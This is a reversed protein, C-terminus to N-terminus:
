RMNTEIMNAVAGMGGAGKLGIELGSMVDFFVKIDDPGVHALRKCSDYLFFQIAINIASKIARPVSGKYFAAVGGEKLKNRVTGVIDMRGGEEAEGNVAVLITDSPQSVLSAAVGAVMGSLLSVLLSLTVSEGAQPFLSYALKSAADFVAFKAMMYPIEALLLVPVGDFLERTQGRRAVEQLGGILTRPFGPSTVAKIRLSEFPTVATAAFTAAMASAFLLLPVPYLTAFEPGCIEVFKRKFFETLGFSVGGYVFYGTITAGAGLLFADKGEEELLTKFTSVMGPYKRPESQMRTKVVDIPILVAHATAGCAAGCAAFRLFVGVDLPREKEVPYRARPGDLFSFYPALKQSPYIQFESNDYYICYKPDLVQIPSIYFKGLCPDLKPVLNNPLLETVAQQLSAPPLWSRLLEGEPPPSLVAEVKAVQGFNAFDVRTPPQDVTVTIPLDVGYGSGPKVVAVEGVMMDLIAEATAGGMMREIVEGAGAATVNIATMNIAPGAIMVRIDDGTTYGKGPNTLVVGALKDGKLMCMATAARGWSARPPSITVDPAKVYGKGPSTVKIRFLRGTPKLVAKAAATDDLFAPGDVKVSPPAEPTYGSGGDVVKYGIISANDTEGILRKILEVPQVSDMLSFLLAIQRRASLQEGFQEVLLKFLSRVGDKGQYKRLGFAISAQFKSFAETQDTLGAYFEEESLSGNGDLDLNYFVSTAGEEILRKSFKQASAVSVKTQQANWWYASITDYNILFRALYAVFRPSYTGREQATSEEYDAIASWVLEPEGKAALDDDAIGPQAMGLALFIASAATTAAAAGVFQRRSM